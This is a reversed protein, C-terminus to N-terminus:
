QVNYNWWGWAKCCKKGFVLVVFENGVSDTLLDSRNNVIDMCVPTLELVGVSRSSPIIVDKKPKYFITMNISQSLDSSAVDYAWEAGALYKGVVRVMYHALRDAGPANKGHWKLWCRMVLDLMRANEAAAASM